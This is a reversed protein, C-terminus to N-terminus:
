SGSDLYWYVRQPVGVVAVQVFTAAPSTFLFGARGDPLLILQGSPLFNRSWVGDIFARRSSNGPLLTLSADLASYGFIRSTFSPMCSSVLSPFGM